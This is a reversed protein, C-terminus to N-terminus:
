PRYRSSVSKSPEEAGHGVKPLSGKHEGPGIFPAVTANSHTPSSIHPIPGQHCDYNIHLPCRCIVQIMTLRTQMDNSTTIARLEHCERKIKNTYSMPFQGSSNIQMYSACTYLNCHIECKFDQLTLSNDASVTMTLVQLNFNRSHLDWVIIQPANGM